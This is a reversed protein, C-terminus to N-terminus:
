AHLRSVRAGKKGGMITLLLQHKFTSIVNKMMQLANRTRLDCRSSFADWIEGGSTSDM